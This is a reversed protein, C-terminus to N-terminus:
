PREASFDFMVSAPCAFPEEMRREVAPKTVSSGYGAGITLCLPASAAHGGHVHHSVGSPNFAAPARMRAARAGGISLLYYLTSDHFRARADRHVQRRGASARSRRPAAALRAPSYQYEHTHRLPHRNHFTTVPM